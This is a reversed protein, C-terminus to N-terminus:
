GHPKPALSKRRTEGLTPLDLRYSIPPLGERAGREAHVKGGAHALASRVAEVVSGSGAFLGDANPSPAEITITVTTPTGHYALM